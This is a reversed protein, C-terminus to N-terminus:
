TEFRNNWVDPRRHTRNKLFHRYDELREKVDDTLLNLSGLLEELEDPSAEYGIGKRKESSFFANWKQRDEEQLNGGLGRTVFYSYDFDIFPYEVSVVDAIRADNVGLKKLTSVVTERMQQQSATSMGGYRGSGQMSWLIVKSLQEGLMGLQGVTARAEDIVERMEGELGDKSFKFKVIDDFRAAVLCVFAALLTIYLGEKGSLLLYLFIVLFVVVAGYFTHRWFGSNM